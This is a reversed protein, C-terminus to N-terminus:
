VEERINRSVPDHIEPAPVEVYSKCEPWTSQTTKVTRLQFSCCAVDATGKVRGTVNLRGSLVAEEFVNRM